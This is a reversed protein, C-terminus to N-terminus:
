SASEAKERWPLFATLLWILPLYVLCAAKLFARYVTTVLYACPLATYSMWCSLWARHRPDSLRVSYLLWFPSFIQYNLESRNDVPKRIMPWPLYEPAKFCDTALVIRRWNEPVAALSQYPSKCFSTISATFRLALYPMAAAAAAIAGPALLSWSAMWGFRFILWGICFLSIAATILTLNGSGYLKLYLFLGRNLSEQTRILALPLMLSSATYWLLLHPFKYGLFGFISLALLSECAAFFSFRGANISDRTSRWRWTKKLVALKATELMRLQQTNLEFRDLVPISEPPIQHIPNGDFSFQTLASLKGIEKPLYTLNNNRLRLEGLTTLRGVEDPLSSLKNNELDLVKLSALDGIEKPLSGLQNLQLFLLSLSTLNGIEPPLSTLLNRQLFLEELKALKGIEKPVSQLQNSGLSLRTLKTLNSIEAPIIALDNDQLYLERLETLKTAELPLISMHNEGLSLTKLISLQGISSPLASLRNNTLTLSILSCICGLEEPLTALQNNQLDLTRLHGLQGLEVPLSSLCNSYASLNRLETLAGIEPPLHLLRNNQIHLQRLDALLGIEEPLETLHNDNLHLERLAKLKGIQWRLEHLRNNNLQLKALSTLDWLDIPLLTLDLGSLDLATQCDAHCKGIRKLAENFGKGARRRNNEAEANELASM